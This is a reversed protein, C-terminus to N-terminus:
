CSVSKGPQKSLLGLKKIKSRLTNPNQGLLEAAGGPGHIRGGTKQLAKQIHLSVAEDLKLVEQNNTQLDPANDVNHPFVIKLIEKIHIAIKEIEGPEQDQTPLHSFAPQLNQFLLSEFSNSTPKIQGQHQILAREVINELERVNGPWRYARLRNISEATLSPPSLNKEGAKRRIFYDVLAPIDEKRERLPPIMIPFVNLRFWLDERFQKLKVMGELDRHTSAIIRIDLPVSETGGVREIQKHQLVRLLRVQAEQPLEGIEDLLITGKHAREFRGRKRAVAGTFAGKEHGFLESDILTEPIAGCNVKIFPGNRRPSSYHIANAIVEKGAGTEGLLLVPNSLPAVQRVMELVTKLGGERGIIEDGSLRLLEQHLYHNDDILMEKLKIVEEHRLANSMAIAFPDHLLSLLHAHENTYRNKGHVYTVLAFLRKDQINLRMIMLSTDPMKIWQSIWQSIMGVPHTEPQNVIMVDKLGAWVREFDSRIKKPIRTTPRDGPQSIITADNLDTWERISEAHLERKSATVRDFKKIEPLNSYAVGALIVFAPLGPEAMILNMGTLPIYNRLYELTNRMATRADLSGCIRLTAQRFFDNIDLAM